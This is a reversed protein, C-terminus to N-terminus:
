IASTLWAVISILGVVFVLLAVAVAMTCGADALRSRPNPTNSSKARRPAPTWYRGTEERVAQQLAVLRVQVPRPFAEIRDRIPLAAVIDGATPYRERMAAMAKDVQEDSCDTLYWFAAARPLDGMEFYVEGTLALVDQNTPQAAFLGTVRDRAKWLRGAQLDGRVRDFGEGQVM